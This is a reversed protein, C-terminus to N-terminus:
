KKVEGGRCERLGGQFKISKEDIKILSCGNEPCLRRNRSIHSFLAVGGDLEVVMLVDVLFLTQAFTILVFSIEGWFFFQEIQIIVAFLRPAIVSTHM